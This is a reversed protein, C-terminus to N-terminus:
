NTPYSTYFFGLNGVDHGTCSTSSSLADIHGDSGYMTSDEDSFSSTDSCAPCLDAVTRMSATTHDGDDLNLVDGCSLAKVGSLISSPAALSQDVILTQHTCSGTISSVVAFTNGNGYVTKGNRVTTPTYGVAGQPYQGHCIEGSGSGLNLAVANKLTDGGDDIGTGNMWTAAIFQANLKIPTFHCITKGKVVDTTVVWADTDGTDNASKECESEHPINYQTYFINRFYTWPTPLTYDPVNVTQVATAGPLTANWTGDATSYIAPPVSDFDLKLAQSGPVQSPFLNIDLVQNQISTAGYFNLTLDGTTGSPATLKVAVNGNMIDSTDTIKASLAQIQVTSTATNPATGVTVTAIETPENAPPAVTATIQTASVVSENSVAIVTGSPTTVNVASVPCSTTANATTIFNTGTITVPNYTQGAYWTGPSISTITPAPCTPWQASTQALQLPWPPAVKIGICIAGGM